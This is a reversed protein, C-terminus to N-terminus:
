RSTMTDFFSSIKDWLVGIATASFAGVFVAIKKINILRNKKRESNAPDILTSRLDTMMMRTRDIIKRDVITSIEDDGPMHKIRQKILEVDTKLCGIEQMIDTRMTGITQTLVLIHDMLDNHRQGTDTLDRRAM